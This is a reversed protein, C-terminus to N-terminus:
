LRQRVKATYLRTFIFIWVTQVAFGGGAWATWPEGQMLRVFALPAWFPPFIGAAFMLPSKIFYGAAPAAFLIGSLKALAMAEVKNGAFTVLFLALGPASLAYLLSLSVLPLLPASMGGQLLPLMGSLPLSIVTPILMRCFLYRGSPIPLVTTYRLIGGDRDDLMRLGAVMGNLLPPVMMMFGTIFYHYPALDFAFRRKLIEGAFPVGARLIVGILFPLVLLFLLEPERFLNRVEGRLLVAEQKM